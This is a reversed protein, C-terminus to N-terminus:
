PGIDLIQQAPEFVNDNIEEALGYDVAEQASLIRTDSMDTTIAHIPTGSRESLISAISDREREIQVLADRLM